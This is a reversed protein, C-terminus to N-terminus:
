SKARKVPLCHMFRNPSPAAMLYEDVRYPALFTHRNVHSEYVMSIRHRHRRLRCRLRSCASGRDSSSYPGVSAGNSCLCAAPDTRGPLGPPLLSRERKM